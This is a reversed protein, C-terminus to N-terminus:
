PQRRHRKAEPMVKTAHITEFGRAFDDARGEVVPDRMEVEGVIVSRRRSRGFFGKPGQQTGIECRKAIFEDDRRLSPVRHPRPRVAVPTRALVQDGAEVLTELSQPRVIDINEIVMARVRFRREFFGHTREVIGYAASSREIDPQRVIRCGQHSARSGNQPLQAGRAHDM